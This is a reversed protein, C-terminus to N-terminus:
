EVDCHGEGDIHGLTAVQAEVFGWLDDVDADGVQYRVEGGIDRGELEAQTVVGDGDADSAAILDFVVRPEESVLDDYLLHDAHITLQARGPEGDAVRADIECDVYRTPQDFGWDFRVTTDGRVAQGVVRIALGDVAAVDDADGQPTSPAPALTYALRHYHGEPVPLTVVAQGAGSSPTALDFVRPTTDNAAGAGDVEVATVVVLFREFTVAWGDEVCGDCGAEGAPIGDEIFEEGYISVALTGDGAATEEDDCGMVGLAMGLMAAAIAGTKVTGNSVTDKSM